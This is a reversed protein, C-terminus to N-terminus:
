RAQRFFNSVHAIPSRSVEDLTGEVVLEGDYLFFVDDAIIEACLVDHTIAISSIGRDDRLRAILESVVGVSVPDLGTTPEDYFLVDPKLIIARALAARKRQGGSLESPYKRAHEPLNVWELTEMVAEARLRRNLRTHRDLIFNLNEFVSMSDFLAGGQFLYGISLRVRDLADDDLDDVREGRIWVEGRDPELLRVITKVLVSKGSGSGGMVVATTGSKVNMSVGRLVELDGFSKSVDRVSVAIDTDHAM